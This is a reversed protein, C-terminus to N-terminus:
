GRLQEAEPLNELIELDQILDYNEILELEQALQLDSSTMEPGNKVLRTSTVIILLLMVAGALVPALRRPVLLDRWWSKSAEEAALRRYVKYQFDQWFASSKDKELQEKAVMALAKKIQVYTQRCANCTELHRAIASRASGALEQYYYNVLDSQIKKCEM